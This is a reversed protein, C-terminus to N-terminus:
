DWRIDRNGQLHELGDLFYKDVDWDLADDGTVVELKEVCRKLEDLAEDWDWGPRGRLFLSVSTFPLGHAKRKQAVSLLLKLARNHFCHSQPNPHIILTRISSFWQGDDPDENLASLCPMVANCSLILTRVDGLGLAEKFFEVDPRSFRSAYGDVCFTEASRDELDLLSDLYMVDQARQRDLLEGLVMGEFCVKAGEANILELAEAMENGDPSHTMRLKVRKIEALYDPDKFCPFVHNVATTGRPIQFRFKISSSPPLSLKDFVTLSYTGGFNTETYTRLSPLSVVLDSRSRLCDLYSIDIHELLPCNSLFAILRQADSQGEGNLFKFRKLNRAYFPIPNLGYVVLSTLSPFYWSITERTPGWGPTWITDREGNWDDDNLFIELRKLSPLPESLLKKKQVSWYPLKLTAIRKSQQRLQTLSGVMQPVTDPSMDVHLLTQKSREFFARARMNHKFDLHSWLSPCSLLANRLHYSVHTAKVLDAESALHSAVEPFLESSLRYLPSELPNIRRRLMALTTCLDNEVAKM